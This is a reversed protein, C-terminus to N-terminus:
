ITGNKWVRIALPCAILAGAVSSSYAEERGKLTPIAGVLRLKSTTFLNVTDMGVDPVNRVYAICAPVSGASDVNTSDLEPHFTIEANKWNEDLWKRGTYGTVSNPITLSTQFKNPFCLRVPAADIDVNGQLDDVMQQKILRLGKIVEDVTLDTNTASFDTPLDEVRAALAPDNLVGYLKKGDASYGNWFFDNMFMADRLVIADHKDKAANRRMVGAVAEELKTVELGYEVRITDRTLWGYNYNALLPRSWDDYLGVGGTLERTKFVLAETTWDGAQTVGFAQTATRGQYLANIDKDFFHLFFQGLADINAGGLNLAADKAYEPSKKYEAIEKEFGQALAASDFSFGMAEADKVGFNTEKTAKQVSFKRLFAPTASDTVITQKM